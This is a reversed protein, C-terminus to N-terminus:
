RRRRRRSRRNKKALVVIIVICAACGSALVAMVGWETTRGDAPDNKIDPEIVEESEQTLAESETPQQAETPQESETGQETETPQETEKPRESETPQRTEEPAPDYDVKIVTDSTIKSLSRDYTINIAELEEEDLETASYGDRVYQTAILKGDHMFKVTHLTDQRLIDGTKVLGYYNAIGTADAVGLDKLQAETSLHNAADKTSSIYAHEIIIGTIGLDKARKIVGYYDAVSGDAYTTGDESLRTFVGKNRLGLASLQELISNALGQGEKGVEPLYNRSPVHVEAGGVSPDDFANLHLSVYVDADVSAAFEVRKKNDNRSAYKMNFTEPYPCASGERTLYVKVNSYTCLEAYCYQAIKYNLTTEDLGNGTSGTHTADHGPDLVIVFAEEGSTTTQAPNSNSAWVCNIDAFILVVTIILITFKKM